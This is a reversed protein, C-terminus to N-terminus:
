IQNNIKDIRIAKRKREKERIKIDRVNLIKNKVKNEKKFKGMIILM